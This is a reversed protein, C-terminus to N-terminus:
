PVAPNQEDTSTTHERGRQRMQALILSSDDLRDVGQMAGDINELRSLVQAQFETTRASQLEMADDIKDLRSLIQSQFEINKASQLEQQEILHALRQVQMEQIRSNVRQQFQKMEAALKQQEAAHQEFVDRMLLYKARERAVQFFPLYTPRYWRANATAKMWEMIGNRYQGRVRMHIAQVQKIQDVFRLVLSEAEGQLKTDLLESIGLTKTTLSSLYGGPGAAEEGFKIWDKIKAELEGRSESWRRAALTSYLYIGALIAYAFTLIGAISAAQSLPSDSCTTAYAHESM